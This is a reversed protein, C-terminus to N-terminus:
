VAKELFRIAQEVGDEKRIAAGLGAAQSRMQADTLAQGISDALRPATMQRRSFWKPSVGLEFVRQAWYYQDIIHPVVIGPAGSRLVAATTGFGGHHIVASAQNFLWDHPLAGAAYVAAPANLQALVDEWGQIIARVGAQRVADLVVQAAQRSRAAGMVGLSVVLPKEGASLFELLGPPPKWGPLPRAYWYNVQRVQPLWRPIPPAVEQHVPLLILRSSLMTTIDQVPPAGVKRRFRNTPGIFLRGLTWAFIKEMLAPKSAPALPVRGPQLTVSVWPKGLIEAEVVGSGTDSTVVLDADRCAALVDTFAEEVLRGGLKMVRIMGIWMNDLSKELLREAVAGMDVPRGVPAAKVGHQEVLACLTPNTALTVEHGADRLGQALNLYPQVDGRSGITPLIIKM